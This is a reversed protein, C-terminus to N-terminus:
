HEVPWITLALVVLSALIVWQPWRLVAKILPRYLRILIRSLPHRAENLIKGRIFFVMLVPIITIALLASAAM